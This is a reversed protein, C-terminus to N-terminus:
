SVKEDFSLIKLPTASKVGNKNVFIKLFLFFHYFKGHNTM